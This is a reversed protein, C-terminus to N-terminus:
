KGRSVKARYRRAAEALVATDIDELSIPRGEYPPVRRRFEEISIRERDPGTARLLVGDAREVVELAAGEKWHLRDRVAKPIVVQGKASLKTQANM